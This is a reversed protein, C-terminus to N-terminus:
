PVFLRESEGTRVNQILIMGHKDFLLSNGNEVTGLLKGDTSYILYDGQESFLLQSSQPDFYTGQGEVMVSVIGKNYRTGDYDTSTLKYYNIGKAPRNHIINYEITSSSNGAGAVNGVPSFDYGNQSHLITFHDNNQESQTQWSLYTSGNNYVAEFNITTSPLVTIPCVESLPNRMQRLWQLNALNNPLGPTENGSVSGSSWNSINMFDGANFWGCMGGGNGNFLKTNHPGGSMETGGYSVGFYYAGNPSRVQIADGSNRLSLAGWETLSATSYTCPVYVSDPSTSAPYTGCREFLSSTHPIVYLSDGNSDNPDNPPLSANIDGANYIVILSGVPITAWQTDNSFRFHGPAIGSATGAYSSPTTFTGNNDDLIYGRIDVLTGCKGAVVFEYYEQEGAAGNSWENIILGESDPLTAPPCAVFTISIDSGSNTGTTSPSSSIVRIRYGTGSSIGAPISINITGSISTSSLTGINVPSTFSGTADSLQATFVNGSNITGTFSYDVSGSAPTLCNIIFSSASVSTVSLSCDNTFTFQLPTAFTAGTIGPNTSVIRLLYGTGSLSPPFNLNITGSPNTGEAAAGTLTGVTLPSAFSGSANSLQVIFSNGSNFVGTSTYNLSATPGSTCTTALSASSISTIELDICNSIHTGLNSINDISLISWQTTLTPFGSVPNNLVGTTVAANRILTQNETSYGGAGSWSAGPDQGITGIIDATYSLSTNFLEVADDGNFNVSGNSVNATVGLGELSNELIFTGYAPLSGSLVITTSSTSGNSYIRVAYNSLDVSSSSPNYIELYKNNSNGEIYESFFLESCPAIGRGSLNIVCSGEDSDNNLITLTGTSAGGSTPNFVLTFDQSSGSAISVPLTPAPSLSYNSNSFNFASINLTATGTNLIRIVRTENIGVYNSGYNIAVGCNQNTGVPQQLQLEPAPVVGVGTLNFVCTGEDSDNSTITLAGTITGGTTPNFDINIVQSGGAAITFPTAPPSNLTYDTSGSLALSSITLDTTGTNQITLAISGSSTTLISGFDHTFGCPRNTSSTQLNLETGVIGIPTLSFDDIGLGDDAGSANFDNWRIWFTAGAAISLGTLSSSISSRNGADNGNLAGVIGTSNPAIFDLSNEDTWTGSTLSTANLSYQFDMQDFRGTAGLRWQEGLYSIDLSTITVGTNNTFSAGITPNVGGSRLGGFARESNSAAGFSYTNGANDSGTGAAYTSNASTGVENLFWGTPLTGSTGSNALTNFDQGYPTNITSLPVQAFSTVALVIFVLFSLVKMSANFM